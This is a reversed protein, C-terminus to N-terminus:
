NIHQCIWYHSGNGTEKHKRRVFFVVALAVVGIAALGGVVGGVIGSLSSNDTELASFYICFLLM